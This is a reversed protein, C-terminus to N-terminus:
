NKKNKNRKYPKALQNKEKSELQMNYIEEKMCLELDEKM